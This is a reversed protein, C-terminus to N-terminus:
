QHTLTGSGDVLAKTVIVAELAPQTKWIAVSGRRPHLSILQFLKGFRIVALHYKKKLM